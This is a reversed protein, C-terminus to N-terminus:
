YSFIKKCLSILEAVPSVHENRIDWFNFGRTGKYPGPGALIPLHVGRNSCEKRGGRPSQPQSCLWRSRRSTLFSAEESVAEAGIQTDWEKVLM